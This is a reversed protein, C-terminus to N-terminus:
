IHILSLIQLEIGETNIEPVTAAKQVASKDMKKLFSNFELKTYLEILRDYDPEEMRFEDFNIELPVHTNITALRRSMVALQANDEIKERM